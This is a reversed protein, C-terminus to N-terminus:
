HFQLHFQNTDVTSSSSFESEDYIKRIWISEIRIWLDVFQSEVRMWNWKAFSFQIFSCFFLYLLFLKKIERLKSLLKFSRMGYKRTTQRSCIKRLLYFEKRENTSFYKGNKVNKKQHKGEWRRRIIKWKVDSWIVIRRQCFIGFMKWKWAFHLSFHRTFEFEPVRPPFNVQRKEHPFTQCNKEDHKWSDCWLM